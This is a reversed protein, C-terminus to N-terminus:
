MGKRITTVSDKHRQLVPITNQAWTKLQGDTGSNAQKQFLDITKQHDNDMMGMYHRDFNKGKMNQMAQLHAKKDTPLTDPLTMGHSSALGKLEDSAKTHDTVMMQAFDKVRQSEANQQALQGAQVEMLGGIAAEMVFTSDDKSLPMTNVTNDALQNLSDGDGNATDSGATSDGSNNCSWITLASLCITFSLIKKM